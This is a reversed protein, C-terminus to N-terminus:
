LIIALIYYVKRKLATSHSKSFVYFIQKRIM